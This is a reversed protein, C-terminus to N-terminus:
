REDAFGGLWKEIQHGAGQFPEAVVEGGLAIHQGLRQVQVHAHGAMARAM